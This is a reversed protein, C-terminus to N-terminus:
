ARGLGTVAATVAQTQVGDPWRLRVGHGEVLTGCRATV